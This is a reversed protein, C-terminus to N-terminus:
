EGGYFVSWLDLDLWMVIVVILLFINLLFLVKATVDLSMFWAYVYRLIQRSAWYIWAALLRVLKFLAKAIAKLASLLWGAAVHAAHALRSRASDNQM